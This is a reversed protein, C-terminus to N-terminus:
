NTPLGVAKLLKDALRDNFASNIADRATVGAEM